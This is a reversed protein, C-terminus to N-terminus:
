NLTKVFSPFSIKNNCEDLPWVCAQKGNQWQIAVIAVLGRGYKMAHTFQSDRGYFQIRCLM